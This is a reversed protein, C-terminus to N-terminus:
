VGDFEIYISDGCAVTVTTDLATCLSIFALDFDVDIDGADVEVTETSLIGMDSAVNDGDVSVDPTCLSNNFITIVAKNGEDCAVTNDKCGTILLLTAMLGFLSRLKMNFRKQLACNIRWLGSTSFFYITARTFQVILRQGLRNFTPSAATGM